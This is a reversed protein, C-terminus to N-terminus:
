DKVLSNNGFANHVITLHTLSIDLKLCHVYELTDLADICQVCATDQKISQVLIFRM